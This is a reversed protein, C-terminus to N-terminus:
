IDILWDEKNDINPPQARKTPSSTGDVGFSMLSEVDLDMHQQLKPSAKTDAPSPEDRHRGRRIGLVEAEFGLDSEGMLSMLDATAESPACRVGGLPQAPSNIVHLSDDGHDKRSVFTEEKRTLHRKSKQPSRSLQAQNRQSNMPKGGHSRSTAQSRNNGSPARAQMHPQPSQKQNAAGRRNGVAQNNARPFPQHGATGRSQTRQQGIVRFGDRNVTVPTFLENIGGRQGANPPPASDLEIEPSPNLAQLRAERIVEDHIAPNKSFDIWKEPSSDRIQDPAASPIASSSLPSSELQLQAMQQEVKLTKFQECNECCRCQDTCVGSCKHGCPLIQTCPNLCTLKDHSIVHCSLVCDHGCPLKGDCKIWCGGANGVFSEPSKMWIENTGQKDNHNQCVLPLGKDMAVRQQEAFGNWIPAWTDFSQKTSQFLNNKNGFMFFGRRARSVAVTARNRSEVFGVRKPENPAPPSRVLSLLVIENEEGQYSDVTAVNFRCAGLSLADRARRLLSQIKKRQGRYYTLVTIDTPKVGNQVLYIMFAVIMEAEKHNFKSNDPDTEEPWEHTFFWSRRSGMGQVPPREAQDLVLPHDKLGPYCKQVIYRLEPAMRRQQNLMTYPVNNRVLREFLSVNLNFPEDGLRAIDCQPPLQQHDGVLILQELSPFLASSVNPERTEAAEEILLVRAGTAALFGRYKTLGTTTCGIINICHKELVKLDSYWKNVKQQKAHSVAQQIIERLRATSAERLKAQLIQYVGGRLPIPIKYMDDSQSLLAECRPKWGPVRPTNGTYYSTFPIWIGHLPDDQDDATDDDLEPDESEVFQEDVAEEDPFEVDDLSQRLREIREESLWAQMGPEDDDEWGENSLSNFQAENIVGADLLAQPDLLEQGGFVGDVVTKLEEIIQLRQKELSKYKLRGDIGGKGLSQRLNYVTREKIIENGTRGGVRLIKAGAEHCYILLQDLAHNTQAAIIVPPDGLQRNSLIVNLAQVSTFTKGTGPPGQVVALEKSVMRQLAQLQSADLSTQPQIGQKSLPRSMDCEQYKEAVQQYVVRELDQSGLARQQQAQTLQTVLCSLDLHPEQSIHRALSDHTDLRLLYKDLPSTEGAAMQLGIMAHRAAEYFGNRSEIMVLEQDPDVVAEEACAWIIDVTPPNQDLGGEIPRQAVIAVRCDTQFSDTSLAVIRGPTLRKAQKWQIRRGARQTSFSVRCFPSMKTMLYGKVLVKTYVCTNEDDGMSPSSKFENISFRLGEVAEFRLIKYLAELYCAKSEFPADVPFSPLDNTTAAPNMVETSTPFEPLQQWLPGKDPANLPNHQVHDRIATIMEENTAM